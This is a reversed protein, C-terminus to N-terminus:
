LEDEDIVNFVIGNNRGCVYDVGNPNGGMKLDSLYLPENEIFFCCAFEDGVSLKSNVSREVIFKEDGLYKFICERNPKWLVRLMDGVELDEAILRSSMIPNSEDKGDQQAVYDCFAEWSLFGAYVCLADLTSRRPEVGDVYGWFRKLTSQSILIQTRVRIDDSLYIFDRPTCIKRSATREIHERLKQAYNIENNNNM